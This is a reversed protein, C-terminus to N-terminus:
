AWRHADVIEFANIDALSGVASRQNIQDRVVIEVVVLARQQQHKRQAPLPVRGVERLAMRVPHQVQRTFKLPGHDPHNGGVRSHRPTLGGRRQIGRGSGDFM